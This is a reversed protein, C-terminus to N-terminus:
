DLGSRWGLWADLTFSKRQNRQGAAEEDQARNGPRVGVEAVGREVIKPRAHNEGVRSSEFCDWRRVRYYAAEGQGRAM